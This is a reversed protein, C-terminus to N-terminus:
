EIMDHVYCGRMRVFWSIQFFLLPEEACGGDGFDEVACGGVEAGGGGEGDGRAAQGEPAGDQGVGEDAGAADRGGVRGKLGGQPPELVHGIPEQGDDPPVRGSRAVQALLEISPGAKLPARHIQSPTIPTIDIRDPPPPTTTTSPQPIPLPKPTPRIIHPTNSLSM